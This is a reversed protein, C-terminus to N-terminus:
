NKSDEELEEKLFAASSEAMEKIDLYLDDFRTIVKLINEPNVPLIEAPDDPNAVGDGWEGKDDLVQWGLIVTKSFAEKLLGAIVSNDAKDNRIARRHPKILKEVLASYKQNAGGARALLVRFGEAPQYWVGKKEVEKDVNFSEYM